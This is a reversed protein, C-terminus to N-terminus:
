AALALVGTQQYALWADADVENDFFYPYVDYGACSRQSDQVCVSDAVDRRTADLVYAIFVPQGLAAHMAPVLVDNFWAPFGLDHWNRQRLDLLWFRCNGHARAAALLEGYHRRMEADGVPGVWEGRLQQSSPNYALKFNASVATSVSM